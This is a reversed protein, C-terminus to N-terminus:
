PNDLKSNPDLIEKGISIIKTWERTMGVGNRKGGKLSRRGNLGRAKIDQRIMIVNGKRTEYESSTIEFWEKEGCVSMTHRSSESLETSRKMISFILSHILDAKMHNKIRDKSRKDRRKNNKGNKSAINDKNRNKNKSGPAVVPRSNRNGGGGEKTRARNGLRNSSHVRGTHELLIITNPHGPLNLVKLRHEGQKIMAEKRQKM